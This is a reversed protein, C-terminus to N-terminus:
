GVSLGSDTGGLVAFGASEDARKPCAASGDTTFTLDLEEDALLAPRTIALPLAAPVGDPQGAVLVGRRAPEGPLGAVVGAEVGGM